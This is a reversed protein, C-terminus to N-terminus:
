ARKAARWEALDREVARLWNNVTRPTVKFHGSVSPARPDQTEIPWDDCHHLVFAQRHRPDRIAALAERIELLQVADDAVDGPQRVREELSGDEEDEDEEGRTTPLRNETVLREHEREYRAHINIALFRMARRFKAQYFEGAGEDGLIATIMATIVDGYVDHLDDGAVGLLRLTRQISPTCRRILQQSLESYLASDDALWAERILYVLCEDKLFRPSGKETCKVRALQEAAPENLLANLQSEVDSPRVYPTGAKTSRTLPKALVRKGGLAM